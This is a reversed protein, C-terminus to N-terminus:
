MGSAFLIEPCSEPKVNLGTARTEGAPFVSSAEQTRPQINAEAIM